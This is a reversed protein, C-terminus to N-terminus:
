KSNINKIINIQLTLILYYLFYKHKHLNLLLFYYNYIDIFIKVLDNSIINM